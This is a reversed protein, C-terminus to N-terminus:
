GFESTTPRGACARRDSKVGDVPNPAAFNPDGVLRRTLIDVAVLSPGTWHSDTKRSISDMTKLLESLTQKCEVATPHEARLAQLARNIAKDVVHWDAPSRPKLGAEASDWAVDLDKIRAKARAFGKTWL